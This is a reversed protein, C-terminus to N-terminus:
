EKNNNELVMAGYDQSIRSDPTDEQIFNDDADICGCEYEGDHYIPNGKWGKKCEVSFKDKYIYESDEPVKYCEHRYNPMGGHNYSNEECENCVETKWNFFEGSKCLVGSLDFM